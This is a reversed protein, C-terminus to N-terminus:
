LIILDWLNSKNMGILLKKYLEGYNKGLFNSETQKCVRPDGHFVTGHFEFTINRTKAFGDVRWKTGQIKYEGINRQHQIFCKM